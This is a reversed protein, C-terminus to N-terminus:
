LMVPSIVVLTVRYPARRVCPLVVELLRSSQRHGLRQRVAGAAVIAFRGPLEEPCRCPHIVRAQPALHSSAATREDRPVHADVRVDARRHVPHHTRVSAGIEETHVHSSGISPLGGHGLVGDGSRGLYEQLTGLGPPAFVWAQRLSTANAPTITTAASSYSTHQPGNLYAPWDVSSSTGSVAGPATAVLGISLATVAMTLAALKARM